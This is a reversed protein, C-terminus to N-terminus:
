KLSLIFELRKYQKGLYKVAIIDSFYSRCLGLLLYKNWDISIAPLINYSFYLESQLNGFSELYYLLEKKIEDLQNSNIDLNEKKILKSEEVQVYDDALNNFFQLYNDLKKLHMKDIYQNLKLVTIEDLSYAYAYIIEDNNLNPNKDKSIFPEKFYYRNAYYTKALLYIVKSNNLLGIKSVEEPYLMRIRAYLKGSLIVNSNLSNFLVVIENGILDIFSKNIENAVLYDYVERNKYFDDLYELCRKVIRYNKDLDSYARKELYKIVKFKYNTFYCYDDFLFFDNYGPSVKSLTNNIVSFNNIIKGIRENNIGKLKLYKSFIDITETKINEKVEAPEVVIHRRLLFFCEDLPVNYAELLGQINMMAHTSTHNTNLYLNKFPSYNTRKAKSFIDTKTWHYHINLLEEETKPSMNDLARLIEITMKNWASSYIEINKYKFFYPVTENLFTLPSTMGFEYYRKKNIIHIKYKIKLLENM